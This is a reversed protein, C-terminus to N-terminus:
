LVNAFFEILSDMESDGQDEDDDSDGEQATDTSTSPLDVTGLCRGPTRTGNFDQLNYIMNIRSMLQSNVRLRRLIFDQVAPLIPDRSVTLEQVVRAFLRSEDVIATHLWRVEVTCRVIEEQARQIRRHLKIVERGVPKTWEKDRVDNRTDRLLMFEELFSYKSAKKWDLKPRGFAVAAANYSNVARRITKSRTQLSKSLHTRLKYGTQSLNLKHLEFMRQVVLKQLKELARHYRRETLYTTTAKYEDSSPTWRESIGMKMEMDVVELLIRDHQEKAARRKRELKATASANAAYSPPARPNSSNFSYDSPTSAIFATTADIRQAQLKYLEQLSEVYTIAWVDAPDEKGLASFFSKENQEWQEIDADTINLSSKTEELTITDEEIIKFAQCLNNYIFNASQGYKEWDWQEFYARILLRRRYSSAYRIISALQNSSSFIREMTELDELGIGKTVNPHHALQCIYNHTYGHFANVCLSSDTQKFLSGLSSNKVTSLFSCGIDYGGLSGPKLTDLVKSLFSLPYKALEGSKVMDVIWLIMGHRCAGAFIGTEDFIPWMRKKDEAAASKWNRTCQTLDTDQTCGDTPDGEVQGDGGNEIKEDDDDDDENDDGEDEEDWSPSSVNKGVPPSKQARVENAFKDVYAQPIFYDSDEFTRTDGAVRNGLASTSMRKLSNNGDFAWLRSFKLSPEEELEYCCARCANQVRWDPADWGLVKQVRKDVERLVTLYVEYTDAILVRFSRKYPIKYYECVVKGFAEASYSAKSLRIRHYLEMTQLSLALRPERPSKALYGNRMLDVAPSLSDAPREITVNSQSQSQPHQHYMQSQLQSPNGNLFHTPSHTSSLAGLM